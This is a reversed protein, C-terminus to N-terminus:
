TLWKFGWGPIIQSEKGTFKELKAWLEICIVWNKFSFTLMYLLEGAFPFHDTPDWINWFLLLATISLTFYIRRLPKCSVSFTLCILISKPKGTSSSYTIFISSSSSPPGIITQLWLSYFVSGLSSILGCDCGCAGCDSTFYIFYDFYSCYISWFYYLLLLSGLIETDFLARLGKLIQYYNAKFEIKYLKILLYVIM